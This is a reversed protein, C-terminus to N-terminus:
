FKKKGLKMVKFGRNWPYGIRGFISIWWVCPLRVAECLIFEHTENVPLVYSMPMPLLVNYTEVHKLHLMYTHIYIYIHIYM